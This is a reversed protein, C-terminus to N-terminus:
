SSHPGQGSRGILNRTSAAATVSMAGVWTWTAVEGRTSPDVLIVPPDHEPPMELNGITALPRGVQWDLLLSLKTLVRVEDELVGSQREGEYEMTLALSQNKLNWRVATLIGGQGNAVHGSGGSAGRWKPPWCELEQVKMRRNGKDAWRSTAGVSSIALALPTGSSRRM